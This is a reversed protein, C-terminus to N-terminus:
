TGSLRATAPFAGFPLGTPDQAFRLVCGNLRRSCEDARWYNANGPWQAQGTAPGAHCWSYRRLGRSTVRYVVDNTQYTEAASWLGRYNQLNAAPAPADFLDARVVNSAYGCGEGRYTWTCLAAYIIRAPVMTDEVDLHSGLEFEVAFRNESIKREILFIDDPLSKTPDADPMGDLYRAFVRKRIFRAGLLDEFARMLPSLTGAINGMVVSPRPPAGEGSFAFGKAEMPLPTYEIGQWKIPERQTDTGPYFFLLDGGLDTADIVFLELLADTELRSLERIVEFNSM